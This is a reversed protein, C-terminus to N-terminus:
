ASRSCPAWTPVRLHCLGLEPDIFYFYYHLCRGSDPKVFTKGSGKDHWPKFSSCSEMASFIHVLGPHSGREAVIAQVREEKRFAKIQRIFEITIGHEEAVQETHVRLRERSPQAWQTFDFIRVKHANLYRTM